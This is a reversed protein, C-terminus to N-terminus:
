PQTAAFTALLPKVHELWPGVIERAVAFNDLIEKIVVAAQKACADTPLIGGKNRLQEVIADAESQLEPLSDWEGQRAKAAIQASQEQLLQLLALTDM